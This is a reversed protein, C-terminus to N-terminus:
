GSPALFPLSPPPRRPGIGGAFADGEDARACFCNVRATKGKRRFSWRWNLLGVDARQTGPSLALLLLSGSLMAAAMNIRRWLMVGRLAPRGKATEASWDEEAACSTCYM